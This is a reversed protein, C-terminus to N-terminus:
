PAQRNIDSFELNVRNIGDMARIKSRLNNAAEDKFTVSPLTVEFETGKGPESNIGIRGNHMEVLSKVLSLGIGSGEHRRLLTDELQRFREFILLQKEEPIGMGSDKVSIIIKDGRDFVSIEINGPPDTFKVANSLLNLIIREISDPDCAIIKGGADSKFTLLLGKTRTYEMASEAINEVIKVIDCNQMHLEFFDSDIKAMDILNNVLRLLRLCNQTILDLSKKAKDEASESLGKKLYSNLVQVVTFIMNLPTKLEHSVNAFFNNRLKDYEIEFERIRNFAIVLDGLEDNSTVPILKNFNAGKGSAIEELGETVLSIDGTLNRSFYYLIIVNLIVLFLLGFLFYSVTDESIIKYSVGATWVGNKGAIKMFTGNKLGSDDYIRGDRFRSYNNMYITFYKDLDSGDSTLTKGEPTIIFDLIKTDKYNVGSLPAWLQKEGGIADSKEFADHIKEKYIEFLYNGREDIIRSYGLFSTFLVAVVFLPLLQLFIKHRISLRLGELKQGKYTKVLIGRLVRKSFTFTFVSTLTFFTFALIIIKLFSSWLALSYILMIVAMLITLICVPIIIQGIYILYPLKLCKARVSGEDKEIGKLAGALVFSGIIISITVIIAYQLTYSIFYERDFQLFDPNYNLLVPLLPYFVAASILIVIANVLIISSM